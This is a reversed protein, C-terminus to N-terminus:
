FPLDLDSDDAPPFDDFNPEPEPPKPPPPPPAPAAKPQRIPQGTKAAQIFLTAAAAIVDATATDKGFHHNCAKVAFELCDNYLPGLPKQNGTQAVKAGNQTTDPRKAGKPPWQVWGCGDKDKCTWLPMPNKGQAAREENKKANNWTDGNCKPCQM